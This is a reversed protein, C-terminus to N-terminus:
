APVGMFAASGIGWQGLSAIAQKVPVDLIRVRDLPVIILSGVAPTPVSPIFIVCRGDPAREMLFGLLEHDDLAVRVVQLGARDEGLIGRSLTRFVGYGPIRNLVGKEALRGLGRGVATRVLIGAVFCVGLVGGAAILTPYRLTSPIWGVAPALGARVWDVAALLGVVLLAVPLIVVVGGLLTTWLFRLVPM